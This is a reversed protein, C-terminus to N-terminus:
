VLAQKSRRWFDHWSRRAITLIRRRWTRTSREYQALMKECDSPKVESELITLIAFQGSGPPTIEFKFDANRGNVEVSFEGHKAPHHIRGLRKYYNMWRGALCCEFSSMEWTSSARKAIPVIQDERKQFVIKEARDALSILILLIRIGSLKDMM